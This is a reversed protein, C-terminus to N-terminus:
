LGMREAKMLALVINKVHEVQETLLICADALEMLQDRRSINQNLINTIQSIQKIDEITEM